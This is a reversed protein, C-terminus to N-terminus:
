APLSNLNIHFTYSGVSAGQDRLTFKVVFSEGINLSVASEWNKLHTMDFSTLLFKLPLDSCSWMVSCPNNGVNTINIQPSDKGIDNMIGWDYSSVNLGTSLWTVKLTTQAQIVCTNPISFTYEAVVFGVVIGVMLLLSAIGLKMKKEMNKEGIEMNVPLTHSSIITQM